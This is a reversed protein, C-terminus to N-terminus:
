IGHIDGTQMMAGLDALSGRADWAAESPPPVSGRDVWFTKCGVQRAPMDATLSDGVMLCQSPQCGLRQALTLFFHPHPKCASMTEFSTIAHYPFEDASVGAWRLRALIASRPFVPQTAIAMQYGQAFGLAILDRAAPDPQTHHRLADFDKAYFADFLPQLESQSRQVRPYFIANFVQENTGNRGDNVAMAHTAERLAPLFVTTPIEQQVKAVLAQFYRPLFVEMDNILLTDDLDLLLARIRAASLAVEKVTLYFFWRPM